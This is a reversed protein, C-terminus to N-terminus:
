GDYFSVNVFNDPRGNSVASQACCMIGALCHVFGLQRKYTDAGWTLFVAIQIESIDSSDTFLDTMRKMRFRPAM